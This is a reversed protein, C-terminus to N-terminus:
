CNQLVTKPSAGEEPTAFNSDPNELGGPRGGLLSSREDHGGGGGGASSRDGQFLYPLTQCTVDCLLWVSSHLM